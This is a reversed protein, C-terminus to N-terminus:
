LNESCILPLNYYLLKATLGWIIYGEYEYFLVEHNGRAWPYDKGNPIKELPFDETLRIRMENQYREPKQERFFSLPVTFVSAVESESYQGQYHLLEGLCADIRRNSGTLVYDLAGYVRINEGNLLLEEKTERVATELASEGGEQKGGPFCIEGPQHALKSSRVEFLIHFGDEKRILPIMVAFQKINESGIREPVRKKLQEFM